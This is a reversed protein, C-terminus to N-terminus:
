SDEFPRQGPTVTNRPAVPHVALQSLVITRPVPNVALAWLRVNVGSRRELAVTM